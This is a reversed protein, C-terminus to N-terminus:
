LVCTCYDNSLTLVICHFTLKVLNFGSGCVEWMKGTLDNRSGMFTKRLKRISNNRFERIKKSVALEVHRRYNKREEETQIGVQDMVRKVIVGDSLIAADVIKVSCFM